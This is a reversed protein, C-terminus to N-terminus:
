GGAKRSAKGAGDSASVSGQSSGKDGSFRRSSAQRGAISVIQAEPLGELVLDYILSLMEAYDRADLSGRLQDALGVAMRLVELNMTHSVGAEVSGSPRSDRDFAAGAREEGEGTLLWHASWGRAVLGLLVQLSPEAEGREYGQYSRLAVGM